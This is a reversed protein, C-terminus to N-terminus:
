LMWTYTDTDTHLCRVPLPVMVHDDVGAVGDNDVQVVDFDGLFLEKTLPWGNTSYFSLIENHAIHYLVIHPKNSINENLQM